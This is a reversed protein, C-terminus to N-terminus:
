NVRGLEWGKNPINEGVLGGDGSERWKVHYGLELGMEESSSGEGVGGGGVVCREGKESM